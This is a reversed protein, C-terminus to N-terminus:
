LGVGQGGWAWAKLPRDITSTRTRSQGIRTSHSSRRSFQQFTVCVSVFHPRVFESVKPSLAREIVSCSLAAPSPFSIGQAHNICKSCHPTTQISFSSETMKNVSRKTDRAMCLFRLKGRQNFTLVTLAYLDVVKLLETKISFSQRSLPVNKCRM